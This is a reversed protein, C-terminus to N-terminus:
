LSYILKELKDLAIPQVIAKGIDNLLVYNMVGKDRKKDMKLVEFIEKKDYNGYAPLGYRGLMDAVKGAHKFGTLKESLRCAVVMGISVAHGHSLKHNNEIAHAWTHGFNLLKREGREFEDAQVVNSKITANKKILKMTAEANKRYFKLSNQQLEKFMRADKICAHKIIEAFGNVWEEEPLTKLFSPDFLLFEPQNIAGVLNKYIGVDIGNKGGISADVMALMSTPAFGFRIGRMYVSAAYGALDTIVGGGIGVVLSQRDAQYAILQAIITDVTSQIKFAEGPPIVITKWDSFKKKHKAFLHEDTVLVTHAPDALKALQTFPADFYYTTTQRSFAYKKREM